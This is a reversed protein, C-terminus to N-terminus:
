LKNQPPVFRPDAPTKTTRRRRIAAATGALSIGLLAIITPESVLGLLNIQSLVFLM